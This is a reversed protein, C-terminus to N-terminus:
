CLLLVREPLLRPPCKCPVEEEGSEGAAKHGACVSRLDFAASRCLAALFLACCVSSVPCFGGLRSTVLCVVVGEGQQATNIGVMLQM